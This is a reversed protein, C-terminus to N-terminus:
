FIRTALRCLSSSPTSVDHAENNFDDERTLSTDTASESPGSSPERPLSAGTKEELTKALLRELRDVRDLLQSRHQRSAFTLLVACFLRTATKCVQSAKEERDEKRVFVALWSSCVM